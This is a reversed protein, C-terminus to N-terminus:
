ATDLVVVEAEAEGVSEVVLKDGANVGDIFAGDGEVFVEDRGDLKISAKGGKSAAM